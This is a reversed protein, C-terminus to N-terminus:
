LRKTHLRYAYQRTGKKKRTVRIITLPCIARPPLGGPSAAIDDSLSQCTVSRFVLGCRPVAVGVAAGTYFIVPGPSLFIPFYKLLLHEQIDITSQLTEDESGHM